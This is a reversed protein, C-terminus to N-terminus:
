AGRYDQRHRLYVGPAHPSRHDFAILAVEGSESSVISDLLSGVKQIKPLMGEVDANAQVAIVISVPHFTIDLGVNNQPHGNDYIKFDSAQLGNVTKGSKTSVTM